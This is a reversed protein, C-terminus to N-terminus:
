LGVQQVPGMYPHFNWMYNTEGMSKLEADLTILSTEEYAYHAAGAILM